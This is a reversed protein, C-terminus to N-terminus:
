YIVIKQFNFLINLTKHFRCAKEQNKLYENKPFYKVAFLRVCKKEKKQKLNQEISINKFVEKM